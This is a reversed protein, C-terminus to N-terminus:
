KDKKMKKLKNQLYIYMEPTEQQIFDKEILVWKESTRFWMDYRIEFDPLFEKLDLWISGTALDKEEM